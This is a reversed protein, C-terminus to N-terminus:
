PPPPSPPPPSPSPPPPSPSPPSPSPPLPSPSSPPPSPPPLSPPPLAPPSPPPRPSMALSCFTEAFYAEVEQINQGLFAYQDAPASAIAQLTMEVAGGFGVAFISLNGTAKLHSAIAIATNDDGDVTQQGDSLLMIVRNATAARNGPGDLVNRAMTLGDSISTMGGTTYQSLSADTVSSNSSLNSLVTADDAFTVVASKTDPVRFQRTISRAFNPVQNKVPEMSSSADLLLVLDLLFGGCAPAYPPRPPPPPPPPLPPAANCL